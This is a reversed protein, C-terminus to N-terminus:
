VDNRRKLWLDRLRKFLTKLDVSFGFMGPKMEVADILRNATPDVNSGGIGSASEALYARAYKVVELQEQILNYVARGRPEQWLRERYKPAVAHLKELLEPANVSLFNKTKTFWLDHADINGPQNYGRLIIEGEEILGDLRESVYSSPM